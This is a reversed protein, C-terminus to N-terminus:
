AVLGGLTFNNQERYCHALVLVRSSFKFHFAKSVHAFVLHKVVM